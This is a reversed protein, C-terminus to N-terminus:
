KQDSNRAAWKTCTAMKKVAFMGIECRFEEEFFITGEGKGPVKVHHLRGRYDKHDEYHFSKCTMNACNACTDPMTKYGTILEGDEYTAGKPPPGKIATFDHGLEHREGLWRHLDRRNAIELRM